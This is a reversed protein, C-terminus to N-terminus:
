NLCYPGSRIVPRPPNDANMKTVFVKESDSQQAGICSWGGTSTGPVQTVITTPTVSTVELAAAGLEVCNGAAPTHTGSCTNSKDKKVCCSNTLDVGTTCGSPIPAPNGADANFGAGLVRLTQGGRLSNTPYIPTTTDLSMNVAAGHQIGSTDVSGCVRPSDNAWQDNRAFVVAQAGGPPTPTPKANQFDCDSGANRGFMNNGASGLPGGGFDASSFDALTVGHLANYASGVGQAKITTSDFTALGNTGTGCLYDNALTMTSTSDVTAGRLVHNRSVNADAVLESTDGHSALGNAGNDVQQGDTRFGAREVTNREAKIHGGGPACSKTASQIGGRYNDHIWSDRVVAYGNAVAKVGKDLASLGEVNRVTVAPSTFSSGASDVNVLDRACASGCIPNCNPSCTLLNGGDIKVAEVLNSTAAAGQFSLLNNPQPTGAPLTNKISLGEITNNASAVSFWAVGNLDVVRSFPSQSGVAAANADGVIWPNGNSDIGDITIYGRTLSLSAQQTM